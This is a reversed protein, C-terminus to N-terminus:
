RSGGRQVATGGTHLPKSLLAAPDGPVDQLRSISAPAHNHQLL